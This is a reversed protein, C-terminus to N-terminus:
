SVVEGAPLGLVYFRSVTRAWDAELGIAVVPSTVIQGPGVDPHGSVIGVLSLLDDEPHAILRWRSLVPAKALEDETPRGGQLIRKMDHELRRILGARDELGTKGDANDYSAM